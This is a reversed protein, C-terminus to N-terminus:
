ECALGSVSVSICVDVARRVGVFTMIVVSLMIVVFSMIVASSMIVVFSIIVPDKLANQAASPNEQLNRLVNSIVPDQLIQQIEPDKM